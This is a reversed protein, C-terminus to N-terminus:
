SNIISAIMNFAKIFETDYIEDLDKTLTRYNFYNNDNIYKKQYNYDNRIKTEVETINKLNRKSNKIGIFYFSDIYDKPLKSLLITSHTAIILQGTILPIMKKLLEVSLLDHMHNSYEDLIVIENNAAKIFYPLVKIIEKIGSSEDSFPIAIKRNNIKKYLILQYMKGNISYKTSLIDEIFVSLINKLIPALNQLEKKSTKELLGENIHSLLYPSSKSIGEIANSYNCIRYNLQDFQGLIDTLNSLFACKIYARNYNGLENKLISIFSHVGWSKEILDHLKKRESSNMVASENIYINNKDLKFYCGRNKSILYYLEEYIIISNRIRIEYYGTCNNEYFELRIVTPKKYDVGKINDYIKSVSTTKRSFYNSLINIDDIDFEHADNFKEKIMHLDKNIDMTRMLDYLATFAELLTSKGSGNPGYIIALKKPPNNKSSLSFTINDFVKFNELHLQKYLM